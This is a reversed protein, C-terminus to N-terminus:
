EKKSTLFNSGAEFPATLGNGVCSNNRTTADSAFVMSSRDVHEGISTSNGNVNVSRRSLDSIVNSGFQKNRKSPQSGQSGHHEFAANDIGSDESLNAYENVGFLFPDDLVTVKSNPQIIDPKSHHIINAQKQQHRDSSSTSYMKSRRRSPHKMPFLTPLTVFPRKEDTTTTTTSASSESPQTDEQLNSSMALRQSAAKGYVQRYYKEQDGYLFCVKWWQKCALLNAQQPIGEMTSTSTM